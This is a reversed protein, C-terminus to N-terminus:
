SLFGFNRCSIKMKGLVVGGERKIIRILESWIEFYSTGPCEGISENASRDLIDPIQNTIYEVMNKHGYCCCYFIPTDKFPLHDEHLEMGEEHFM